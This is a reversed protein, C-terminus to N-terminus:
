PPEDPQKVLHMAFIHACPLPSRHFANKLLPSHTVLESSPANQRSASFFRSFNFQLLIVTHSKCEMSCPVPQPAASRARLCQATTLRDPIHYTLLEERLVLEQPPPTTHQTQVWGPGGAVSTNCGQGPTAPVSQAGFLPVMDEASLTAKCKQLRFPYSPPAEHPPATAQKQGRQVRQGTTQM